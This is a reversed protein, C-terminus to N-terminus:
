PLDPPLVGPSRKGVRTARLALCSNRYRHSPGGPNHRPASPGRPAATGIASCSNRYRPSQSLGHNCDHTRPGPPATAETATGSTDCQAVRSVPPQTCAALTESPPESEAALLLVAAALALALALAAAAPPRRLLRRWSTAATGAARRILQAPRDVVALLQTQARRVESALRGPRHTQGVERGQHLLRKSYCRVSGGPELTANRSTRSPARAGM